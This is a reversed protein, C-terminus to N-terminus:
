FRYAAGIMYTRDQGNYGNETVYEKDFLNRVGASLEVDKFEVSARIGHLTYGGTHSGSVKSSSASTTLWILDVNQDSVNYTVATNLNRAHSDTTNSTKDKVKLYDTSATVSLNDIDYSLELEIGSRNAKAVNITSYELHGNTPNLVPLPSNRIMDDINQNFYTLRVIGRDTETFLGDKHLGFGVEKNVSNEPKLNPNPLVDIAPRGGMSPYHLETYMEDISPARFDHSYSAYLNLWDTTRVTVGFSPLVKKTKVDSSGSGTMNYNVYRVAGTVTLMEWDITDQIFAGYEKRQGNANAFNDEKGNVTGSQKTNLISAGYTIENSTPGLVLYHSNQTDFQVRDVKSDQLGAMTSTMAASRKMRSYSLSSKFNINDGRYLEHTIQATDNKFDDPAVRNNTYKNESHKLNLQVRQGDDINMGFKGVLNRNQNKTHKASNEKNLESNYGDATVIFDFRKDHTRGYTGVGTHFAEDSSDLRTRAFGGFDKGDKLLEDVSKTRIVVVGGIGGSGYLASGGGKVVEVQKVLLPDITLPNISMGKNSDITQNVGDVNLIIQGRSGGRITIGGYPGGTAKVGALRDLSESLDTAQQKRIDESRTVAIAQPVDLINKNTKTATIVITDMSSVNDKDTDAIAMQPILSAVLTAIISINSKIM